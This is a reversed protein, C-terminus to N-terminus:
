GVHHRAAPKVGLRSVPAAMFYVSYGVVAPVHIGNSNKDIQIDEIDLLRGTQPDVILRISNRSGLTGTPVAVGVGTRGARDTTRGLDSVGPIISLMRYLAQLFSAAPPSYDLYNILATMAHAVAVPEGPSTSGFGEPAALKAFLATPSNPLETLKGFPVVKTPTLL